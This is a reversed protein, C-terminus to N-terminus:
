NVLLLQRWILPLWGLSIKVQRVNQGGHGRIPWAAPPPTGKRPAWSVPRPPPLEYFGDAYLWTRAPTKSHILGVCLTFSVFPLAQLLSELGSYAPLRLLLYRSLWQTGSEATSCPSLFTKFVLLPFLTLWPFTVAMLPLRCDAHDAAAFSVKQECLTSPLM